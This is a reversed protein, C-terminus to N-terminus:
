YVFDTFFKGVTPLVSSEFKKKRAELVPDASPPPTKQRKPKPSRSLSRKRIRQKPPSKRRRESVRPRSPPPTLKRRIPSLPTRSRSRSRRYVPSPSRSYSRRPSRKRREIIQHNELVFALSRPSLPANIVPVRSEPISVPFPNNSYPPFPSVDAPTHYTPPRQPKPLKVKQENTEELMKEKQKTSDKESSGKGTGVKEEEEEKIEKDVVKKSDSGVLSQMHDVQEEEEIEDLKEETEEKPPEVPTIKEVEGEIEKELEQMLAELSNSRKVKGGSDEDDETESDSESNDYRDFKSTQETSKTESVTRPAAYRHQPLVLKPVSDATKSDSSDSDITPM